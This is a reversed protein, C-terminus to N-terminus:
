FGEVGALYQKYEGLGVADLDILNLGHLDGTLQMYFQTNDNAALRQGHRSQVENVIEPLQEQTLLTEGHTQAYAVPDAQEVGLDKIETSVSCCKRKEWNIVVNRTKCQVPDAPKPNLIVQRKVDQFPLWREILVDQPKDPLEPLREIVVKRAPPSLLTGPITIIKSAPAEPKPPPAERYVIVDQNSPVDPVQRIIVLIIILKFKHNITQKTHTKFKGPPGHPVLINAEQNIVIPGPNPVNGPELYKIAVERSCQVCNPVKQYITPCADQNLPYDELAVPGRFRESEQKNVWLGTEDNVTIEDSIVAAAPEGVAHIVDVEVKSICTHDCM